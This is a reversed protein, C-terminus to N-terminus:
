AKEARNLPTVSSVFSCFHEVVRLQHDQSVTQLTQVAQLNQPTKYATVHVNM